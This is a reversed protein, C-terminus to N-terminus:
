RPANEGDIRGYLSVQIGVAPGAVEGINERGYVLRATRAPEWIAQLGLRHARKDQAGDSTVPRVLLLGTKGLFDKVRAELADALVVEQRPLPVRQADPLHPIRVILYLREAHIVPHLNPQNNLSSAGSTRAAARKASPVNM